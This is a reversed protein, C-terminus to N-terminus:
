LLMKLGDVNRLEAYIATLQQYTLLTVLVSVSQYNGKGSPKIRVADEAVRVHKEIAAVVSSRFNEQALGVAKFEYHCPFELLDEPATKNSM